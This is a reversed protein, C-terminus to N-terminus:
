VGRREEENGEGEDDGGDCASKQEEFAGALCMRLAWGRVVIGKV